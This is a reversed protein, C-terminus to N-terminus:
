AIQLRLRAPLAYIKEAPSPKVVVAAVLRGPQHIKFSLRERACRLLLIMAVGSRSVQTGAPLAM